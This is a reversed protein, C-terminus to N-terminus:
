SQTPRACWLQTLPNYAHPSPRMRARVAHHEELVAALADASAQLRPAQLAAHLAAEPIAFGLRDLARAEKVLETLQHGLNVTLRRVGRM